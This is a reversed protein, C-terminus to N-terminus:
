GFSKICDTLGPKVLQIEKVWSIGFRFLPLTKNYLSCNISNLLAVLGGTSLVEDRADECDANALGEGRLFEKEFGLIENSGTKSRL